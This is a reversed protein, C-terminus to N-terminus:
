EIWLGPLPFFVTRIRFTYQRLRLPTTAGLLDFTVTPIKQNLTSIMIRLVLNFIFSMTKRFDGNGHIRSESYPEWDFDHDLLRIM